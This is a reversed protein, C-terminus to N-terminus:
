GILTCGRDHRHNSGTTSSRRLRSSADLTARAAADFPSTDAALGYRLPQDEKDSELAVAVVTRKDNTNGLVRAWAARPERAVGLARLADITAEVAGVLENGSAARGTARKGDRVLHVELEETDPLSLVALLRAPREGNPRPGQQANPSLPEAAARAVLAHPQPGSDNTSQWRVVEVSVPRDSHCAAIRSASVPIPLDSRDGVEGVHLQVLLVDDRVDFGAALVGPLRRLELELDDLSGTPQDEAGANM